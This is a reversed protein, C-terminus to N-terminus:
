NHLLLVQASTGFLHGHTQLFPTQFGKSLKPIYCLGVDLCMGSIDDKTPVWLYWLEAAGWGRWPTAVSTTLGAM